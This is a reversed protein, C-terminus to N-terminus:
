WMKYDGCKIVVYGLPLGCIDGSNDCGVGGLEMSVEPHWENM